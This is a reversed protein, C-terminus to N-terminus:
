NKHVKKALRKYNERTIERGLSSEDSIDINRHNEIIESTYNKTYIKIRNEIQMNEEM